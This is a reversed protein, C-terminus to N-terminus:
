RGSSIQGSDDATYYEPIPHSFSDSYRQYVRDAIPGSLPQRQTSAQDGSRQLELWQNTQQGTVPPQSIIVMDPPNHIVIPQDAQVIVMANSLLLAATMFNFKFYRMRQVEKRHLM